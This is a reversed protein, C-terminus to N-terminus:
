RILQVGEFLLDKNLLSMDTESAAAGEEVSGRSDRGIQSVL